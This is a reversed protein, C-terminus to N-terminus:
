FPQPLLAHQCFRRLPLTMPPSTGHEMAQTEVVVRCPLHLETGFCHAVSTPSVAAALKMAFSKSRSRVRFGLTDSFDIINAFNSRTLRPPSTTAQTAQMHACFPLVSANSQSQVPLLQMTLLLLDGCLGVKARGNSLVIPALRIPLGRRNADIVM